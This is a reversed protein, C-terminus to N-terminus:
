RKDAYVDLFDLRIESATTMHVEGGPDLPNVGVQVLDGTRM